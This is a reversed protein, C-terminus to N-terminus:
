LEPVWLLTSTSLGLAKLTEDRAAVPDDAADTWLDLGRPEPAREYWNLLVRRGSSLELGLERYEDLDDRGHEFTVGLRAELVEPTVALLAVPRYDGSPWRYQQSSPVIRFTAM